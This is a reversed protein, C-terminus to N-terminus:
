SKNFRLKTLQDGDIICLTYSGRPIDHIELKNDIICNFDGRKVINGIIDAISYIVSNTQCHYNVELIANEIMNTIEATANRM